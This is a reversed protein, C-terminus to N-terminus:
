EEGHSVTVIEELSTHGQRVKEMGSEFILKAGEKRAQAQLAPLPERRQIMDALTPSIFIVEYVGVRGKYGLGNCNECGVHTYLVDTEKFGYKQIMEPTPAYQQKCNPCLRRVLRQAQVVRL